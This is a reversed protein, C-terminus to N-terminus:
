RTAQLHFIIVLGYMKKLEVSFIDRWSVDFYVLCDHTNRGFPSLMTRYFAVHRSVFHVIKNASCLYKMMFTGYRCM